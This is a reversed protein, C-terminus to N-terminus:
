EPYRWVVLVWFIFWPIINFIPVMYGFIAIILMGIKLSAHKGFVCKIFSIQYIIGMIILTSLGILFVLFNALVFYSTPDAVASLDVGFIQNLLWSVGESFTNYVFSLGKYLLEGTTQKIMEPVVGKIIYAIGLFVVTMIALPLQFTLWLGIGWSINAVSVTTARALIVPNVDLVPVNPIIRKLSPRGKPRARRASPARTETQVRRTNNPTTSSRYQVNVGRAGSGTANTSQIAREDAYQNFDQSVTPHSNPQNIDRETEIQRIYASARENASKRLAADRPRAEIDGSEVNRINNNRTPRPPM